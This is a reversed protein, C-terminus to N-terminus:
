EDEDGSAAGQGGAFGGAGEAEIREIEDDVIVDESLVGRRQAEAIYTERSIAGSNYMDRVDTMSLHGMVSFEKHVVVDTNATIGGMDAMWMLAIELADKLNDAWAKLKSTTKGEDISDGTATSVGTREMILQLGLWQMERELDKLENRAAEIGTGSVEAWKLDSHEATSAFAYGTSNVVKGGEVDMGKILLLPALSKHLCSSKDSKLRWHALNVEAIDALPPKATFFGTRGTYFPTVQIEELETQYEDFLVFRDSGKADDAKRFLRVQVRGEVLDLVRIQEVTSDEFEKGNPDPVTEMIRFQTLVPRNGINEWKWGLVDSLRLLTLYPRLGQQRAQGVTVDGSRPPADAMIFAIGDEIGGRFVDMAFNSLDRGELDVNQCWDFLQGQQDALTLPKEFVKGAMDDRAKKVGNFLSSSERRAKYDEDNEMPFKPLYKEGLSRMHVGGAIVDRIPDSEDRMATVAKSVSDVSM